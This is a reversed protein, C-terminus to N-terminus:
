CEIWLDVKEGVQAIVYEMETPKAKVGPVDYADVDLQFPEISMSQDLNPQNYFVLELSTRSRYGCCYIERIGTDPM